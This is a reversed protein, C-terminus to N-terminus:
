LAFKNEPNDKLHNKHCATAQLRRLYENLQFVM